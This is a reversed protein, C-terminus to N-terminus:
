SLCFTGEEESTMTWGQLTAVSRRRRTNLSRRRLIGTEIMANPIATRGIARPERRWPNCQCMNQTAYQEQELRLFYSIARMDEIKRFAALQEQRSHLLEATPRPDEIEKNLPERSRQRSANERRELCCAEAKVNFPRQWLCELSQNGHKLLLLALM